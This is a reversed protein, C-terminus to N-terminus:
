KQHLGLYSFVSTFYDVTDSPETNWSICLLKSHYARPNRRSSASKCKRCSGHCTYYPLLVNYRWCKGVYFMRTLQSQLYSTMFVNIHYLGPINVSGYTSSSQSGYDKPNSVPLSYPLCPLKRCGILVPSQHFSKSSTILVFQNVFFQSKFQHKPHIRITSGFGTLMFQSQVFLKLKCLNFTVFPGM